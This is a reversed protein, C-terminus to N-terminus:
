RSCEGFNRSYLNANGCSSVCEKWALRDRGYALDKCKKPTYDALCKLFESTSADKCKEEFLHVMENFYKENNTEDTEQAMSPSASLLLLFVILRMIAPRSKIYM